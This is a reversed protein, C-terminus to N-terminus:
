GQPVPPQSGNQGGQPPAGKANPDEQGPPPQPGRALTMADSRAKMQGKLIAQAREFLMAMEQKDKDELADFTDTKAFLQIKMLYDEAKIFPSPIVEQGSVIREIAEDASMVDAESPKPIISEIDRENYADGQMKAIKWLAGPDNAVLPNALWNMALERKDMKRQEVEQINPSAFAFDYDGQLGDPFLEEIKKYDAVGIVKIKKDKPMYIRDYYYTLGLLEKWFFEIRTYVSKFRVESKNLRLRDGGLTGRVDQQRGQFVETLGTDREALDWYRDEQREFIPDAQLRIVNVDGPESVPIQVGPALYHEEPKYSSGERFFLYPRIALDAANINQNHSYNLEDQTPQLREGLSQGWIRDKRPYPICKAYPRKIIRRVEGSTKDIYELGKNERKRLVKGTAPAYWAVLEIKKKPEKPGAGKPAYFYTLYCEAIYRFDRNKRDAANTGFVVDRVRTMIEVATSDQIKFGKPLSMMGEEDYFPQGTEDKLLLREEYDNEDLPIIEFVRSTENVQFGKSDIPMFINEAPVVNWKVSASEVQQIVKVVGFGDQFGNFIAGDMAQYADVENTIQWNLLSEMPMEKRVDEQGQGRVDVTKNPDAFISAMINAHATDILTRVLPVCYNSANPWPDNTPRRFCNYVEEDYQRKAVWGYDEKDRRDNRLMEGLRKALEDDDIEAMQDVPAQLMPDQEMPEEMPEGAMPDPGAMPDGAMEEQPMAGPMAGPMVQDGGPLMSLKMEEPTM